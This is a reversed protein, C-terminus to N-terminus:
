RDLLMAWLSGAATSLGLYILTAGLYLAAGSLTSARNRRSPRLCVACAAPMISAQGSGSARLARAGFQPHWM